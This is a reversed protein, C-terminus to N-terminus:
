DRVTKSSFLTVTEGEETSIKKRSIYGTGTDDWRTVEGVQRKGSDRIITSKVRKYIRGDMDYFVVYEAIKLGDDDLVEMYAHKRRARLEFLERDYAKTKKVWGSRDQVHMEPSIGEAACGSGLAITSVLSLYRLYNRM